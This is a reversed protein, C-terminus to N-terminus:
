CHELQQCKYFPLRRPQKAANMLFSTPLYGQTMKSSRLMSKVDHTFFAETWFDIELQLTIFTLFNYKNGGHESKVLKKGFSRWRYLPICLGTLINLIFSCFCRCHLVPKTNNLLFGCTQHSSQFFLSGYVRLTIVRHEQSTSCSGIEARSCWM